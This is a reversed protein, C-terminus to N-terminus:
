TGGETRTWYRKPDDWMERVQGCIPLERIRGELLDLVMGRVLTTPDVNNNRARLHLARHAGHTVPSATAHLYRGKGKKGGRAYVVKEIKGRYLWHPGIYSPQRPSSLLKHVLSRLVVARSMRRARCYTRWDRDVAPPMVLDVRPLIAHVRATPRSGLKAPERGAARREESLEKQAERLLEPRLGLRASVKELSEGSYTVWVSEKLRDKAWRRFLAIHNQDKTAM